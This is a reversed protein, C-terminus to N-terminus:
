GGRRACSHHPWPQTGRIPPHAPRQRHAPPRLFLCSACLRSAPLRRRLWARSSISSFRSSRLSTARATGFVSNASGSAPIDEARRLVTGQVCSVPFCLKIVKNGHSARANCLSLAVKHFCVFGEFWNPFRSVSQENSRFFVIAANKLSDNVAHENQASDDADPLERM